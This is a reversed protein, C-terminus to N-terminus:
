KHEDKKTKHSAPPKWDKPPRYLNPFTDHIIEVLKYPMDPNEIFPM